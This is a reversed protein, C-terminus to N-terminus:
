QINSNQENESKMLNDYAIDAKKKVNYSDVAEEITFNYMKNYEGMPLRLGIWARYYGQKTITVDKAFIEYGRVPTDKILNVITSEVESVTTKNHTKGLETIFQKSSKNMEGKIIDALEAKAIMMGKEIALNLDPSVATGVGFICMKDKDKGFKPTDCAKSESFDAMYWKPVQNLVKGKESKMQYTASCNAVLLGAVIVGVLKMTTKM